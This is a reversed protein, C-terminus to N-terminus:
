KQRKQALLHIILLDIDSPDVGSIRSAREVTDPRFKILKERAEFKIGIIEHYDLNEPISLPMASFRRDQKVKERRMYGEYKIEMALRKEETRPMQPMRGELRLKAFLESQLDETFQPRRLLNYLNTGTELSFDAPNPQVIDAPKVKIESFQEKWIKINQEKNQLLPFLGRDLGLEAAYKMLRLDANDQRLYLRFEARSTFMRYPEDVGKTVLDDVLVGMYAEDRGLIFPDKGRLAHIVNYGALLGQAAAEEYGTTGNIQGAFYLGRIRKTELTPKLETPPVYDYEVAYGPRMIEAEELGPISRVVEWQVDEPLSTAIGNAYIEHTNLGEPELFIQHRTKDSFRVVKDEISPCYRPGRSQIKGGYIPSRDLNLQIIQHSITNTYTIHCHASNLPPEKGAYEMSFSFPQPQEDPSQAELASFNITLANLRPPTGTKLRLVPFGHRTFSDSLYESSKDAIRGAIDNYDGIHILGKLFTGTTVVVYPALYEVKRETLVGIIKGDEVLLDKAADQMLHLNPTEELRRKMEFQYMKKDAQARPGWVAAGRSRNLMKFHIGTQDIVEGMLGGLADIERVIHGKAVGGISPNCSMQAITDLNFTILLTRYGAKAIIHAAEAGAHGAGVVIADYEKQFRFNGTDPNKQLM